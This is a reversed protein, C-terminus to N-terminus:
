SCPQISSYRSQIHKYPCSNNTGLCRTKSNVKQWFVNDNQWGLVRIGASPARYIIDINKKNFLNINYNVPIRTQFWYIEINVRVLFNLLIAGSQCVLFLCKNSHDCSRFHYMYVSLIQSLSYKIYALDLVFLIIFCIHGLIKVYGM